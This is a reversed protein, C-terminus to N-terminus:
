TKVFFLYYTGNRSILQLETQHLFVKFHQLLGQSLQYIFGTKKRHPVLALKASFFLKWM